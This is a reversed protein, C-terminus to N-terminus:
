CLFTSIQLIFFAGYPALAWILSQYVKEDDFKEVLSIIELYKDPYDTKFDSIEGIIDARAITAQKHCRIYSYVTLKSLPYTSPDIPLDYEHSINQARSIKSIPLVIYDTDISGYGSIVLGPRVKFKTTRTSADYYHVRIKVIKGIM